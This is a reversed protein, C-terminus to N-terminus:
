SAEPAVLEASLRLAEKEGLDLEEWTTIVLYRQGKYSRLSGVMPLAEQPVNVAPRASSASPVFRGASQTSRGKPAPPQRFEFQEGVQQGLAEIEGRLRTVDKKARHLDDSLKKSKVNLDKKAQKDASKLSEKIGRLEDEITTRRSEATALATRRDPLDRNAADVRGQWAARQKEREEDERAKREAEELDAQLKRAADEIKGLQALLAPAGTPGAASPREAELARGATLTGSSASGM